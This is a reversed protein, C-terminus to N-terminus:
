WTLGFLHPISRNCWVGRTTTKGHHLLDCWWWSHFADQWTKKRQAVRGTYINLVVVAIQSVWRAMNRVNFSTWHQFVAGYDALRM